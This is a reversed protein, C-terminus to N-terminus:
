RAGTDRCAHLEEVENRGATGPRRKRHTKRNEHVAGTAPGFCSSSLMRKIVLLSSAPRFSFSNDANNWDTDLFRARVRRPVGSRRFPSAVMSFMVRARISRIHARYLFHRDGRSVVGPAPTM